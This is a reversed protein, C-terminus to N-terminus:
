ASVLSVCVLHYWEVSILIAFIFKLFLVVNVILIPHFM